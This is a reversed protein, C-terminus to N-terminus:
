PADDRMHLPVTPLWTFGKPHEDGVFKQVPGDEDAAFMKLYAMLASRTIKRDVAAHVAATTAAHTGSSSAAWLAKYVALALGASENNHPGDISISRDIKAREGEDALLAMVEETASVRLYDRGGDISLAGCKCTRFDHRHISSILDHCKPCELQSRLLAAM